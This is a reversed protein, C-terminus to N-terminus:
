KGRHYDWLGYVTRREGWGDVTVAAPRPSWPSESARGPMADFCGLESIELESGTQSFPMDVEGRREIGRLPSRERVVSEHPRLLVCVPQDFVSVRARERESSRKYTSIADSENAPPPNDIPSASRNRDHHADAVSWGDVRPAPNM